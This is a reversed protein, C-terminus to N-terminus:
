NLDVWSTGDYLKLKNTATDYYLTGASATPVTSTPILRLSGNIQATHGSDTTTGVVLKGSLYQNGAVQLKYDGADTTTNILLEGSSTIRARETVSGGGSRTGFTMAADANGTRVASLSVANNGTLNGADLRITTAVAADASTNNYFYAIPAATLTNSPSYATADSFEVHLKNLPSATGIGVNGSSTAFNAGNTTRFTGFVDVLYGNDVNTNFGVRGNNHAYIANYGLTGTRLNFIGSGSTGVDMYLSGDNRIAQGSQIQIAANSANGTAYIGGAVQLKYDGADSTTNILLEGDNTIRLRRTSNTQFDMDRTARADIVLQTTNSAFFGSLTGNESLLLGPISGQITMSGSSGLFTSPTTTGIGVNGSTTAFNAGNVSRLTGNIDLQYTPSTTAVGVNGGMLNITGGSGGLQNARIQFGEFNDINLGNATTGSLGNGRFMRSILTASTGFDMYFQATGSAGTSNQVILGSNTSAAGIYRGNGNVDFQYGADTKTNVGIRGNAFIRLRETASTGFRL